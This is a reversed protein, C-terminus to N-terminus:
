GANLELVHTVPCPVGRPSEDLPPVQELIGAVTDDASIFLMDLPICTNRMWFSRQAADAWDFIMGQDEPMTRRFMLGRERSPDDAAVEVAVRPTGAAEVFSVWAHPLNMPGAPDPPCSKAPSAKPAEEAALPVVCAAHAAEKEVAPPAVTPPPPAAATAVSRDSEHHECASVLSAALLLSRGAQRTYPSM